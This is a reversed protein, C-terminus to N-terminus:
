QASQFKNWVEVLDNKKFTALELVLGKQEDQILPLIYLYVPQTSGTASGVELYDAPIDAIEMAQKDAIAQAHLGDDAKLDPLIYEDDIGFRNVASYSDNDKCYAVAAMVEYHKILEKMLADGTQGDYGKFAKKLQGVLENSNAHVQQEKLDNSNEFSKLRRRLREIEAQKKVCEKDEESKGVGSKCTDIYNQVFYIMFLVVLFSLVEFVIFTAPMLDMNFAYKALSLGFFLAGLWFIYKGRKM